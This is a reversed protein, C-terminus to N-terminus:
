SRKREVRHRDVWYAWVILLWQANAAWAVTQVNPPVPGFLNGTYVIVLFGVLCWFAWNGTRDKSDTVRLYLAIGASFLLGEVLVTGVLSDWLGFGLLPSDGPFLPPDPRHVILDLFWHSVVCLGLVVAGRPYRQAVFYVAGLLLGWVLVTLLSHSIPYSQFDLPTVVTVGPAIDVYEVGLLVLLPWLLDIFQAALFVSGLSVKPPLQKLRLVQRM